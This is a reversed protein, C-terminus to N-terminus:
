AEDALQPRWDRVIQAFEAELGLKPPYERLRAVLGFVLVMDQAIEADVAWLDTLDFGGCTRANWWALLFSAVRRAQGTDTQAIRILRRLAALESDSPPSPASFRSELDSRSTFTPSTM